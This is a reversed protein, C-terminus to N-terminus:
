TPRTSGSKIEIDDYWVTGELAELSINTMESEESHAPVIDFGKYDGDIWYHIEVMNESNLEYSIQFEYWKSIEYDVLPTEGAGMIDRNGNFKILTRAPNDWYTGKRLSVKGRHPHCGSLNEFGNFISLKLTFPPTLPLSNLAISARCGGEVGHLRLSQDGSHAHDDIYNEANETANASATWDEPWVNIQYSEFDDISKWTKPTVTLEISQSASGGKADTVEVTITYKKESSVKPAIWNVSSGTTSEFSGGTASWQYSIQDKDPDTATCSLECSEESQIESRSSAFSQILPIRNLGSNDCSSFVLVLVFYFFTLIRKM